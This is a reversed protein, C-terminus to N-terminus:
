PAELLVVAMAAMAKGEGISGLGEMTGAKLNVTEAPVELLEALRARIAGFHPGLRPRQAIVTVDANVIGFGAERMLRLVDGLLSTSSVDKFRPDTDPFHTGIDGKGMAGLLADMLAHLLVDADSHGSLGTEHPVEVGGLILKRGAVLRHIDFGQGVRYSGSLVGDGKAAM